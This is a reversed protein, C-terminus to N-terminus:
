KSRQYVETGDKLKLVLIQIWTRRIFQKRFLYQSDLVLHFFFKQLFSLHCAVCIGRFYYLILYIGIGKKFTVSIFIARQFHLSNKKFTGSEFSCFYSNYKQRKKFIVFVHFHCIFVKECHILMSLQFGSRKFDYSSSYTMQATIFCKHLNTRWEM